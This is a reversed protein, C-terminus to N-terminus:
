NEIKLTQCSFLFLNVQILISKVKFLFDGIIMTGAANYVAHSLLFIAMDSKRQGAWGNAPKGMETPSLPMGTATIFTMYTLDRRYNPKLVGSLGM